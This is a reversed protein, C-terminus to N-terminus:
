YVNKNLLRKKNEANKKHLRKAKIKETAEVLRM